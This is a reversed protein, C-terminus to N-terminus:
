STVTIQYIPRTAPYYFDSPSRLSSGISSRSAAIKKASLNPYSNVEMKADLSPESNPAHMSPSKADFAPFDKNPTLFALSQAPRTMPFSPRISAAFAPKPIRDKLFLPSNQDALPRENHAEPHGVGYLARYAALAITTSQNEPLSRSILSSITSSSASSNLYAGHNSLLMM